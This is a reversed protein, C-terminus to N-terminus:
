ILILFKYINISERKIKQVVIYKILGYKEFLVANIEEKLKKNEGKLEEIEGNLKKNDSDLILGYLINGNPWVFIM